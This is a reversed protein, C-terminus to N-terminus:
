KNWPLADFTHRGRIYYEWLISFATHEPTRGTTRMTQIAERTPAYAPKLRRFDSRARMVAKMNPLDGRLLFQLAAVVDLVLRTRLTRSLEAEPLNKYLMLLNNRFNLYTKRPNGQSLTAGGLHYATSQPVCAIDRGMTRLRWCLDIEEMHAFFRIDLGGSARWDTARCLLAAGTAWM